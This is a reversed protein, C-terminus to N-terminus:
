QPGMAENKGLLHHSVIWETGDNYAFLEACALFFLKWRQYWCEEQGEGYCRTFLALVETRKAYFRQLWHELTQAYHRGNVEWREIEKLPSQVRSALDHSPMMGGSFFHESMWDSADRVEFAYAHTKHAFFHMFFLGDEKLWRSIRTFLVGWNRMHEFMEVSVVRDYSGESTEFVNM